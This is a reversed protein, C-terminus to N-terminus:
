FTLQASLSTTTSNFDVGPLSSARKDNQLSASLTVFRYPQWDVSISASQLKDSCKFMM